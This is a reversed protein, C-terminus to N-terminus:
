RSGLFKQWWSKKLPPPESMGARRLPPPKAGRGGRGDHYSPVRRSFELGDMELVWALEDMDFWVGHQACHEVEIRMLLAPAMVSACHPCHRPKADPTAPRPALREAVPHSEDPSTAEFMEDLHKPPVFV